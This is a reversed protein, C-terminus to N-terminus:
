KNYPYLENIKIKKLDCLLWEADRDELDDDYASEWHYEANKLIKYALSSHIKDVKNSKKLTTLYRLLLTQLYDKYDQETKYWDLGHIPIEQPFDDTNKTHFWSTKNKVKILEKKVNKQLIVESIPKKKGFGWCSPKEFYELGKWIEKTLKNIRELKSKIEKNKLLLENILSKAQKISSAVFKINGEYPMLIYIYM